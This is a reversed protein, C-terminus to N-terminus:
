ATFARDIFLGVGVALVLWSLATVAQERWAARRLAVYFPFAVLVAAAQGAEVGLNFLLLPWAVGDAPLGLEQLMAAFGFGHVLGFGLAILWRRADARGRMWLNEAAVFAISLAIASEVLRGPLVVWGLAAATLTVSHALTFATVIKLLSGLGPSCLLLAALFLLHDYGTLIHEIGLMFFGGAGRVPSPAAALTVSAERSETALAFQEAAGDHEIRTLIHLDAGLVDFSDDRLRLVRMGAPCAFDITVTVNITDASPPAVRAPAPACAVDDGTLRVRERVADGLADRFAAGSGSQRLAAAISRLAAEPIALSYRVTQGSLTLRAFATAGAEHAQVPLVSAALLLCAAVRLCAALWRRALWRRM